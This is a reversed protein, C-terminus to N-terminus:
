NFGAFVDLKNIYGQCNFLEVDHTTLNPAKEFSRSARCRIARKVAQRVLAPGGLM